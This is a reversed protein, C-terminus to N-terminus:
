PTVMKLFDAEGITKTGNKRAAQAKTTNSNPDAMVLYTLGKTVQSKVIGGHEVVLDELDERKRTMTGTFCFSTGTLTGKKREKIQVGAALLEPVLKFGITRCWRFLNGGKVPGVNPVTRLDDGGRVIKEWTDFGNEMVATITTTACMPISMAGLLKDLPIPNKAWLTKLM